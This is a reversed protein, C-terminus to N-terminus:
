TSPTPPNEVPPDADLLSNLEQVLVTFKDHDQEAEIKAVLERIRQQKTGDDLGM